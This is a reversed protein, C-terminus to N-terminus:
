LPRSRLLSRASMQRTLGPAAVSQAASIIPGWTLFTASTGENGVALGQKGDATAPPRRADVLHLTLPRVSVFHSVNGVLRERRRISNDVIRLEPLARLDVVRSGDLRRGHGVDHTRQTWRGSRWDLCCGAGLTARACWGFALLEQADGADRAEDPEKGEDSWPQDELVEALPM